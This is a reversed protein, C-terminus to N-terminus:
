SEVEQKLSLPVEILGEERKVGDLFVPTISLPNNCFPCKRYVVTLKVFNYHDPPNELYINRRDGRYLGSEVKFTYKCKDCRIWIM